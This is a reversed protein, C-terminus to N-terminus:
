RLTWTAGGDETRFVRGDAATVDARLADRATVATLDVVLPFTVRRWAREETSIMVTGGRGVLWCADHGPCAGATLTVEFGLQEPRWSAGRDTSREAVRTPAANAFRLRVTGDSSQIENAVAVQVSEALGTVAITASREAANPAKAAARQGTRAAAVGAVAGTAPPASPAPAAAPAAPSAPPVRTAKERAVADLETRARSEKDADKRAEDAAASRAATRPATATAQKRLQRPSTVRADNLQPAAASERFADASPKAEPPTPAAPTSQAAPANVAVSSTSPRKPEPVAIWIAVAAAAAAVPVVWSMLRWRTPAAKAAPAADSMSALVAQCRACGAAHQEAGARESATLTGDVYAALTEADLCSSAAREDFPLMASSQESVRSRTLLREIIRDRDPTNM